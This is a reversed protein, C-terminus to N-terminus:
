FHMTWLCYVNLIFLIHNLVHSCGPPDAYTDRVGDSFRQVVVLNTGDHAPTIDPMVDTNLAHDGRPVLLAPWWFPEDTDEPDVFVPLVSHFDVVCVCKIHSVNHYFM